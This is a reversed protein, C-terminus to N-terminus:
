AALVRLDGLRLHADAVALLERPQHTAVVVAAGRDRLALLVRVLDHRGREDLAATPEDLCLLEPAAAVAAALGARVREGASLSGVRRGALPALDLLELAADAHQRRGRLAATTTVADHVTQASRVGSGARVYLACGPCSRTGTTPRLLGAAVKLLTTKGSGNDGTVVTLTGAAVRLDVPEWVARGAHHRTVARLVLADGATAPAVSPAPGAPM